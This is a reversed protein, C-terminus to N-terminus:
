NAHSALYARSIQNIQIGHVETGPDAVDLKVPM